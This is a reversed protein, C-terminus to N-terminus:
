GRGRRWGVVMGVWGVGLGLAGPLPVQAPGGAGEFTLEDIRLVGSGDGAFSLAAIGEEREFGVFNGAWREPTVGSQTISELVVGGAGLASITLTTNPLEAFAVLAGARRQPSAFTLVIPGTLLNPAAQGLYATGAPVFEGPYLGFFGGNDVIFPGFSDTRNPAPSTLVVGSPFTFPTPLNVGASPPYPRNLGEFGEVVAGSSFAGTIPAAGAASTLLLLGLAGVRCVM